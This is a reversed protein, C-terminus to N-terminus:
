RHRIEPLVEGVGSCTHGTRMRLRDHDGIVRIM